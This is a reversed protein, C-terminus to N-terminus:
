GEVLTLLIICVKPPVYFELMYGATSKLLVLRCKHWEPTDVSDDDVLHHLIGEKECEVFMKSHKAKELKARQRKTQKHNAPVSDSSSLSNREESHQKFLQRLPKPGRIHRISFKRFFSKSRPVTEELPKVQWEKPLTQNRVVDHGGHSHPRNNLLLRHDTGGDLTTSRQYPAHKLVQDQKRIPSNPASLPGNQLLPGVHGLEGENGKRGQQGPQACFHQLFYDVYKKAYEKPERPAMYERSTAGDIFGSIAITFKHAALAAERECFELWECDGQLLESSGSNAASLSNMGFSDGAGNSLFGSAM